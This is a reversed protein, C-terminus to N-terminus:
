EQDSFGHLGAKWERRRKKTMRGQDGEQRRLRDGRLFAKKQAAATLIEAPTHDTFADQALSASVRKDLLRTVELIRKHTNDAAPVELRDGIKIQAAPKLPAGSRKIKGGSCEKAALSRTKFLRVAWLWKDVRVTDPM